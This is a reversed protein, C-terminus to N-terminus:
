TTAPRSGQGQQIPPEPIATSSPCDLRTHRKSPHHLHSPKTLTGPSSRVGKNEVGALSPRTMRARGGFSVDIKERVPGAWEVKRNRPRCAVGFRGNVFPLLHASM